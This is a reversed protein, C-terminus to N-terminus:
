QAERAVTTLHDLVQVLTLVDAYKADLDYLSAEHARRDRDGVCDSVVFTPWGAQVADVATARVCGSTSVGVVFVSDVARPRLWAALDTGHFGSAAQKCFLEEEPRRELRPDIETWRTGRVLMEMAPMKRLWPGGDSLDPRFVITMFALPLRAARVAQLLRRTAPIVTDVDCALPSAPDTFGLSLDVVVVGPRAGLELRGGLGPPAPRITM